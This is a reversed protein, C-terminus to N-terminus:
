TLLCLCTNSHDFQVESCRRTVRSWECAFITRFRERGCLQELYKQPLHRGLLSQYNATPKCLDCPASRKYSGMLKQSPPKLCLNFCTLLWPTRALIFFMTIGKSKLPFQERQYIHVYQNRKQTLSLSTECSKTGNPQM